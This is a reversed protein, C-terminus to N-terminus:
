KWEEMSRIKMAFIVYISVLIQAALWVYGVVLIDGTAKTALYTGLITAVAIFGRLAILERIRNQVKIISFYIHNVSLPISSVALVQLLQLANVSYSEGFMILIWKGLALVLIVGPILLSFGFQHSKLVNVGLKAEFHSGETFLSRSTANPIMFLFVAVRWAMYFFAAQTAGLHHINVILIPLVYDPTQGFLNAIYNGASYRWIRKIRDFKLRPVPKYGAIGRPLLIFLSVALTIGIAIGYSSVIGFARFFIVLLFPLAIRLLCFLSTRLLVFDARRIAIFIQEMMGSLTSFLAFFVFAIIFAANGKIFSLAPTWVDTGAIFIASVALSVLGTLTLCANILDTPKEEKSIFRQIATGLGLKSFAVILFIANLAAAGYGVDAENYFRAIVVWFIFGLVSTVITSSMLLLSNRYLPQIIQQRLLLLYKSLFKRVSEISPNGKRM